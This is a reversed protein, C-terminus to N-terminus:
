SRRTRGPRYAGSRRATLSFNRKKLLRGVTRESISDIHGRGVCEGALLRLTWRCRGAPPEGCAMAIIRAEVDGTAKAPVPPEERKKRRLFGELSEAELYSRKADNVAQRSVGVRRAAEEQTCAAGEGSEDLCLIVKARNVLRASRVGTKSFKKLEERERAELIIQRQNKM